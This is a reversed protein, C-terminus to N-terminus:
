ASHFKIVKGSAYTGANQSFREHSSNNDHNIKFLFNDRAIQIVRLFSIHIQHPMHWCRIIFLM